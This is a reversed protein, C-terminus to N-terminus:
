LFTYYLIYAEYVALAVFLSLLVFTLGLLRRRKRRKELEGVLEYRVEPKRNEAEQDLTSQVFEKSENLVQALEADNSSYKAFKVLDSTTLIDALLRNEKPTLRDHLAALIDESVREMTQVSFREQLYIRLHDSLDEFAKRRNSTDIKELAALATRHAPVPPPIVVKRVQPKKDSLRRLCVILLAALFWLWLSQLWFHPEFVFTDEVPASPGFFQDLHTTDVEVSNVRLGLVNRSRITDNDVLVYPQLSYLTSDFSTILYRASLEIRQGNNLLNTDVKSISIVEVGQCLPSEETYQPFEVRRKADTSIKVAVTAQEGILIDASDLTADVITQGALLSPWCIWLALFLRFLSVRLNM